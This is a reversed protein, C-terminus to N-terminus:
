LYCEREALYNKFKKRIRMLMSKVKSVSMGCDRAIDCVPDFFFYRRVFVKRQDMPLGDLFRNLLDSFELGELGGSDAPLFDEFESFPVEAGHARKGANLYDLRDLSINRVIRCLYAKLDKPREPPITRWLAMLADSFCEEADPRSKLINQAVSLGLAKFKEECMSIARQDRALFLSIIEENEM